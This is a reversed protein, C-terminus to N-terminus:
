KKPRDILVCIYSEHDDSRAEDSEIMLVICTESIFDVLISLKGRVSGAVTSSNPVGVTVSSILKRFELVTDREWRVINKFM